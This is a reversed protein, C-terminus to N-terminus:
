SKRCRRRRRLAMGVGGSVLVAISTPEPVTQSPLNLSTIATALAGAGGDWNLALLSLDDLDVFGDRDFDGDAWGGPMQWHLALAKLDGVDVNRDLNADADRPPTIAYIANLDWDSVLLRGLPDTVIDTATLFGTLFDSMAGNHPDIMVLRRGSPNNASLAVLLNGRDPGSTIFDFGAPARHSGVITLPTMTPTPAGPQGAPPFRGVDNLQIDQYFLDPTEPFSGQTDAGNDAALVTGDASVRLGYPNRFGRAYRRLRGDSLSSDAFSTRDQTLALDSVIPHNLDGIRAITGNYVREVAPDGNNTRAGIGVYLSDGAIQIQNITHAGLEIGSVVDFRENADNFDGDHTLDRLRSLAGPRPSTWGPWRSIWLDDGHFGIGTIAKMGDSVAALDVVNFANSLTATLPNYDYRTVATAFGRSAYLHAPDGPKFTLQSLTTLSGANVGASATTLRYGNPPTGPAALLAPCILGCILLATAFRHM